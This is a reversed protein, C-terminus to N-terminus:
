HWPWWQGKVMGFSPLEVCQPVWNEREHHIESLMHLVEPDLAKETAAQCSYVPSFRKQLTFIDNPVGM